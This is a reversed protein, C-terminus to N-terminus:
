PKILSFVGDNNICLLSSLCSGLGPKSRIGPQQCGVGSQLRCRWYGRGQSEDSGSFWAMPQFAIRTCEWCGPPNLSPVSHGAVRALTVLNTAQPALLLLIGLVNQNLSNSSSSLNPRCSAYGSGSARHTFRSSPHMCHHYLSPYGHALSIVAAWVALSYRGAPQNIFSRSSHLNRGKRM